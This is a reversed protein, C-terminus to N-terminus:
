NVQQLFIDAQQANKQASKMMCANRRLKGGKTKNQALLAKVHEFSTSIVQKRKQTVCESRNASILFDVRRGGQKASNKIIQETDGDKLRSQCEEAAFQGRMKRGGNM